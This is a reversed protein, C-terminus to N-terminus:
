LLLQKDYYQSINLIHLLIHLTYIYYKTVCIYVLIKKSFM